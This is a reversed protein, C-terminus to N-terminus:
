IFYRGNRKKTKHASLLINKIQTSQSSFERRSQSEGKNYSLHFAKESKILFKNFTIIPFELRVVIHFLICVELLVNMIVWNSYFSLCTERERERRM